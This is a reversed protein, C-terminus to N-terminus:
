KRCRSSEWLLFARFLVGKQMRSRREMGTLATWTSNYKRCEGSEWFLLARFIVGKQMRSRREMGTLATLTGNYKHRERFLVALFLVGRYM